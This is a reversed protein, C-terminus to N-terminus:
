GHALAWCSPPRHPRPSPPSYAQGHAQTNWHKRADMHLHSSPLALPPFAALTDRYRRPAPHHALWAMSFGAPWFLSFSTSNTIHTHTHPSPAHIACPSPTRPPTRLHPGLMLKGQRHSLMAPPPHRKTDMYVHTSSLSAEAGSPCPFDDSVSQEREFGLSEFHVCMSIHSAWM